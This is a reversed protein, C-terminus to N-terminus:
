LDGIMADVLTWDIQSGEPATSDERRQGTGRNVPVVPLDREALAADVVAAYTARRRPAHSSRATTPASAPARLLVNAPLTLAQSAESEVVIAGDAGITPTARWTPDITVGEGFHRFWVALDGADVVGSLDADDAFFGPGTTAGLQRQWRLFDAGDIREDGNFDAAKVLPAPAHGENAEWIGLDGEDIVGNRNGDAGSGPPVAPQGATQEYLTRDAADVVGNRDYDGFPLPVFRNLGSGLIELVGDGDFDGVATGAGFTRSPDSLTQVVSGAAGNNRIIWLGNHDSAVLDIDGDGDLDAAHLRDSKPPTTSPWLTSVIPLATFNEDGDNVYLEVVFRNQVLATAALDVDGDGDVDIPAMDRAAFSPSAGPARELAHLTWTKNNNEYWAFSGYPSSDLAASVDLDGDGDIDAFRLSTPRNPASAGFELATSFRQQGDNFLVALQTGSTRGVVADLDGDLDVDGLDFVGSLSGFSGTPVPRYAFTEAGSNEYWAIGTGLALVFDVDGDRDFDAPRAGLAGFNLGDDHALFAGDGLSEYWVVQGGSGPYVALVDADGDGDIDASRIVPSSGADGVPASFEGTSAAAPAITLVYDEVEGDLAIGGVRLGGATSLRFRAATVGPTSVAPLTFTLENDGEVVIRSGFIQEGAGGWAGDGDFDIWADLKAGAPANQVNVVVTATTQGARLAPLLVGDDGDDGDAAPTPAGDVESDRAEGLRPGIGSHVPGSDARLTAYPAPADGYDPEALNLNEFWAVATSSVGVRGVIPEFDGDGDLDGFGMVYNPRFTPTLTRRVFQSSGANEFYLLELDTTATASALLDADGDGDFDAAALNGITRGTDLGHAVFSLDDLREYWVLSFITPVGTPRPAGATVVDLDGDGDMDVPIVVHIGNNSTPVPLPKINHVTFNLAGDNELWVVEGHNLSYANDGGAVLDLDGDGDMDAAAVADAGYAFGHVFFAQRGDNVLITPTMGPGTAIVDCDGDSDLDAASLSRVFDSFSFRGVAPATRKTFGAQGDNELWVLENFSTMVVDLDGDSDLDALCFRSGTVGPLFFRSLAFTGDGQNRRWAVASGERLVIDLLGDGDMDGTTLDTLFSTGSLNGLAPGFLGTSPTVADITVAYDEVEGDLAAGTPSLGGATSLRFRAFTTGPAATSPVDVTLLNDGEVVAVGIAVPEGAGSWSGDGNFDIWADLKAGAPANQVNVTITGGLQGVQLAGFVVGDDEDEAGAMSSPAGDPEADRLAGLTPGAANHRAGNHLTTVRYNAPADGYDMEALRRQWAVLPSLMTGSSVVDLRGDGDVDMVFAGSTAGSYLIRATFSESGDNDYWKLQTAASALLDLDGDGDIDAAALGQSAVAAANAVLHMVFEGDGDNEYWVLDGASGVSAVVDFDGDGDVDAPTAARVQGATTTITHRTFGSGGFEFWAIKDGFPEAALVDVDGDGDFDLADVATAGSFDTAFLVSTWSTGHNSHLTLGGPRNSFLDLDGDHDYDALDVATGTLSLSQTTFTQFGDNKSLYLNGSSTGLLVDLDGDGDIDGSKILTAAGISAVLRPTSFAGGLNERWEVHPISGSSSTILDQDGDRDLDASTVATMAAFSIATQGSFLADDGRALPLAYDEVEGDLATGSTPLNGATSLRFRAYGLGDKATAPINFTVANDGNVVPLNNAIKEDTTWDNNRNFDWWADLRAGAPANQVNVTIVAGTQGVRLVGYSVGDDDGGDGVAGVTSMAFSDADRVAGLRPGIAEHSVNPSIAADGFDAALLLRSELREVTLARRRLLERRSKSM